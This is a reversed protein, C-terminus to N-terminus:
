DEKRLSIWKYISTGVQPGQFHYEVVTSQLASTLMHACYATISMVQGISYTKGDTTYYASINQYLKEDIGVVKDLKELVPACFNLTFNSGFDYGSSKWSEKREGKKLKEPDEPPLLSLERLDFFSGTKPSHVTCPIDPKEESAAASTLRAHLAIAGLLLASLLQM